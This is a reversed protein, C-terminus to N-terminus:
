MFGVLAKISKKTEMWGHEKGHGLYLARNRPRKQFSEQFSPRRRFAPSLKLTTVVLINNGM